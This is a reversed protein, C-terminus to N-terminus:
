GYAKVLWPNYSLTAWIHSHSILHIKNGFLFSGQELMLGTAEPWPSISVRVIRSNTFPALLFLVTTTTQLVFTNKRDSINQHQRLSTIGFKQTDYVFIKEFCATVSFQFWILFTLGGWKECLSHSDKSELCRTSSRSWGLQFIVFSSIGLGGRGTSSKTFSVQTQAQPVGNTEAGSWKSLYVNKFILAHEIKSAHVKLLFTTPPM